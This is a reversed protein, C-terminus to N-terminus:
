TAATLICSPVEHPHLLRMNSSYPHMPGLPTKYPRMNSIYPHIPSVKVPLDDMTDELDAIISDEALTKIQQEELQFRCAPCERLGSQVLCSVCLTAPCSTRPCNWRRMHSTPLVEYCVLCTRGHFRCYRKGDLMLTGNFTCPKGDRKRGM